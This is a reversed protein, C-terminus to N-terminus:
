NARLYRNLLRPCAKLEALAASLLRVLEISQHQGISRLNGAAMEHQSRTM